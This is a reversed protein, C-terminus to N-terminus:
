QSFAICEEIENAEVKDGVQLFCQELQDSSDMCLYVGFPVKGGRWSALTRLPEKTREGSVPDFCVMQCRNCQGQCLLKTAGFGVADWSEEEFPKGGDTILNGRFRLVLNDEDPIDDAQSLELKEKLARVSARSVLLFQCVNALSLASDAKDKSKRGDNEKQRLLRCGPRQLAESIWAAVSDGCDVTNVRDRCIKNTCLKREGSEHESEVMNLSIEHDAMAPFKLVLLNNALDIHPQVFCLKPERKQGLSVGSEQTIMWMRDYKLGRSGIEWRSVQFPACSKVPFVCIDTLFREEDCCQTNVYQPVANSEVDGMQNSDALPLSDNLQQDRKDNSQVIDALPLSHKMQQDRKNNSQVIDALPLSHKMQQDRKDNSQVIDALPLSHKLEQIRKEDVSQSNNVPQCSHGTKLYDVLFNPKEECGDVFYDVIFQLCKQADRLTSSYGFSIRISGTPLGNVLDVNDGCDHGAAHHEQIQQTTLHLFKRCSGINCFCGTRFHINQLEALKNVEAYGIYDGNTRLLNFNVISGQKTPDEFSTDCYIKALPNQNGHHLHVLNHHFYRGISFCHNSVKIIDGGIRNFAELGHRLAIIDLFPLSGDEFRDAINSRFVHFRETVDSVVVTGGGVYRKQLVGASEKRVILAGLGTPFGFMKYFSLTVFDPKYKSLDLPSTPVFCAADLLVLWRGRCGSQFGMQGSQIKEIWELPYKQGSFNSEAPYAFLNNSSSTTKINRECCWTGPEYLESESLCTLVSARDAMLERMGFVSTHNDLLFCFCGPHRTELQSTIQTDGGNEHRLSGLKSHMRKESSLETEIEESRRNENETSLLQSSIETDGRNEHQLSETNSRPNKESSIETELEESRKDENETSNGGKNLDEFTFSEAILKLAATCGSTFIVDYEDASAHFFDLVSYRVQEITDTSLQSSANRSHPNGYLNVLLDDHFAKIQGAAYLATGAYDVYTVGAYDVYTVGAYDVYTVGAYDVYTVGAYDVYTVGAYDVYTVGAYDVYTVGAFGPNLLVPLKYFTGRTATLLPAM